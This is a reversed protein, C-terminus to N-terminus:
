ILIVVYAHLIYIHLILIHFFEIIFKLKLLTLNTLYNKLVTYLTVSANKDDGKLKM